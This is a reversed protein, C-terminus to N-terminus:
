SARRSEVHAQKEVKVFVVTVRAGGCKRSSGNTVQDYSRAEHALRKVQSGFTAALSLLFGTRTADPSFSGTAEGSTIVFTACDMAPGTVSWITGPAVWWSM